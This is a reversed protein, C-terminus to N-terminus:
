VVKVDKVSKGVDVNSRTSVCVSDGKEIVYEIFANFIFVCLFSFFIFSYFYLFVVYLM